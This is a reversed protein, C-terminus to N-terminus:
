FYPMMDDAELHTILAGLYEIVNLIRSTAM